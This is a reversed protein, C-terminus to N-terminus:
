DEEIKWWSLEANNNVWADYEEQVIEEIEKETKGELDEDPIEVTEEKSAGAYGTSVYFTYKAM